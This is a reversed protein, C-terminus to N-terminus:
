RSAFTALAALCTIEAVQITAGAVDGTQGGLLRGAVRTLGWTAAAGAAVGGLAPSFGTPLLLLFALAAAFGLAPVARSLPVVASAGLGEARAPALASLPWLAAARSLSGAGALALSAALPGAAEILAALSAARLLVSFVAALVGYTGVRSDRMIALRRERTAGGLADACDALGDEHLGGTLLVLALVAVTGALLPPAGLLTVGALALGGCLGLLAGVLPLAFAARGLDLPRDHATWREPVPLRSFFALCGGVDEAVRRGGFRTAPAHDHPM